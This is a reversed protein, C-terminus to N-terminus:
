PEALEAETWDGCNPFTTRADRMERLRTQEFDPFRVKM